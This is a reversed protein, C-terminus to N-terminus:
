QASAYSEKTSIHLNRIVPSNLYSKSISIDVVFHFVVIGQEKLGDDRENKRQTSENQIVNM